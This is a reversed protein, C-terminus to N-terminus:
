RGIIQEDRYGTRWLSIIEEDDGELFIATSGSFGQNERIVPPLAKRGRFQAVM